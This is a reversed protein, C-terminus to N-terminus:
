RRAAVARLAGVLLERHPRGTTRDVNNWAQPSPHPARVLREPEVGVDRPALGSRDWAVAAHRGLLVVADLHPLLAVVERLYPQARRAEAGLSRRPKGPDQVWWPVVNWHVADRHALGAAASALFTNRATPDNNHRSILRSGHAAVRSPDQLLVLVRAQAGGSEPDFGPVSEGEREAIRRALANLSAVHPEELRRRRRAIEGPNHDDDLLLGAEYAPRNWITVGERLM